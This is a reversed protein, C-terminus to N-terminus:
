LKTNNLVLGKKYYTNTHEHIYASNQINYM